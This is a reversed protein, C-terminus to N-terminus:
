NAPVEESVDIVIEDISKNLAAAIQKAVDYRILAPANRKLLPYLSTPKIDLLQVVDFFLQNDSLLKEKAADTLQIPMKLHKKLQKIQINQVKSKYFYLYNQYFLVNKFFFM